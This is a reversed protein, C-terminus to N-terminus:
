AEVAAKRVRPEAAMVFGFPERTTELMAAFVAVKELDTVAWARPVDERAAEVIRIEPFM